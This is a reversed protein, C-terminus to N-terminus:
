DTSEVIPRQPAYVQAPNPAQPQVEEVSRSGDLGQRLVSGPAPKAALKALTEHVEKVQGM